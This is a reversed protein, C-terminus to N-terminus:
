KGIFKRKAETWNLHKLSIIRRQLVEYFRNDRGSEYALVAGAVMDAVNVRKDNQSDVHWISFKNELHKVLKQNFRTIDTEKSFHRDFIVEKIEGYFAIVDVLLLWCLVAFNEPTDPIKRGMKEVVLVFIEPKEKVFKEFFLKKTRDGATYYKIEGKAKKFDGTKRSQTIVREMKNPSLTGVAAVVIIKDKPDPLTGSEDVFVVVKGM